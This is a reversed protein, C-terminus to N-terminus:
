RFIQGDGNRSKAYIYAVDGCFYFILDIIGDLNLWLM